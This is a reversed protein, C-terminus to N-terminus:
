PLGGRRGLTAPARPRHRLQVLGRGTGPAMNVARHFNDAAEQLRGLRLCAVGASNRLKAFDPKIALGAQCHKLAEDWQGLELCAAGLLSLLVLEEPHRALLARAQEELTKFDGRRNLEFLSKVAAPDLRSMPAAGEGAPAAPPSPRSLPGPGRALPRAVARLAAMAGPRQPLHTAEGARLQPNERQARDPSFRLCADEFPLECFDLIRRTQTELDEVVDEHKVRLVFGPLVQDWHAMLEEYARYYRGAEELGM